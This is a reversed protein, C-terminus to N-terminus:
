RGWRAVVMKTVIRLLLFSCSFMLLPLRKLCRRSSFGAHGSEAVLRAVLTLTAESM